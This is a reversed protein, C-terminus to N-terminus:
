DGSDLGMSKWASAAVSQEAEKKSKGSEPGYMTGFIEVSVWFTRDHDPGTRDVLIYKPVTKYLKQIHEQLLTKYDKHHRNQLVLDIQPNIISLVFTEVAKFGSDLYLAGIIAEMADALIAKKTRGGSMEEGKGLVLYQSVGLSVAIISLTDESVVVSKIKALDGEQRDALVSYLRSAVIMGLVADGLFELRENNNRDRSNENSYSRHHFALDLLSQNRFKIRAKKQFTQLDKVRDGSLPHNLSFM